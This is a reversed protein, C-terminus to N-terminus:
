VRERCSARGIKRDLVRDGSKFGKLLIALAVMLCGEVKTVAMSVCSCFEGIEWQEINSVIESVCIEFSHFDSGIGSCKVVADLSFAFLVM